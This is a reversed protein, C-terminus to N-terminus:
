PGAGGQIPDNGTGGQITDNGDGGLVTDALTGTVAVNINGNLLDLEQGGNSLLAVGQYGAPLTYNTGQPSTVLELNFAGAVPSPLSTGDPTQVVNVSGHAASFSFQGGPISAM